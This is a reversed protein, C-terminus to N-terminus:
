NIRKFSENTYKITKNLYPSSVHHYQPMRKNYKPDIKFSQYFGRDGNPSGDRKTIKSYDDSKANYRWGSPYFTSTTRTGPHNHESYDWTINQDSDLIDKIYNGLGSVKSTNLSTVLNGFKEGTKSNTFENYDWEKDTNRAFFGLIAKGYTKMMKSSIKAEYTGEYKPKSYSSLFSKEVVLPSEDKNESFIRDYSDTTNKIKTFSGDKNLRYDHDPAEPAMGTPDVLNLPNNMTYNYLSWGQFQEALPDVSVFLSM